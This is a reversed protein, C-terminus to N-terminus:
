WIDSAIKAPPYKSFTKTFYNPESFSLADSIEKISYKGNEDACAFPKRSVNRSLKKNVTGKVYLKHGEYGGSIEYEDSGDLYGEYYYQAEGAVDGSM